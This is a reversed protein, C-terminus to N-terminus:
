VGHGPETDDPDPLQSEIDEALHSVRVAEDEVVEALSTMADGEDGVEALAGAASELATGAWGTRRAARSVLEDDNKEAAGKTEGAIRRRAM